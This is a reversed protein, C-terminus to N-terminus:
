QVFRKLAQQAYTDGLPAAKCYWAFAQTNDKPLGGRGNEYMWALCSM